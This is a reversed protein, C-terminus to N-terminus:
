AAARFSSYSWADWIVTSNFAAGHCHMIGGVAIVMVYICLFAIVKDVVESAMVNGNTAGFTNFQPTGLSVTRQQHDLCISASPGNQGGSTSGACAGFFMLCFSLSLVLPGWNEFNAAILGTSTITTSNDSFYSRNHCGRHISCTRYRCYQIVFDCVNCSLISQYIGGFTDHLLSRWDGHYAKYILSFNSGALFCLCLLDCCKIYNSDWFGISSNKTSFYATSVTSLSHCIHQRFLGHSRDM